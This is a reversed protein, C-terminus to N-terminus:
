TYLLLYTCAEEMHKLPGSSFVVSVFSSLCPCYWSVVDKWLICLATSSDLGGPATMSVSVIRLRYRFWLECNQSSVRVYDKPFNICIRQREALMMMIHCLVQRWQLGVCIGLTVLLMSHISAWYALIFTFCSLHQYRDRSNDSPLQPWYSLIRIWTFSINTKFKGCFSFGIGIELSNSIVWIEVTNAYQHKAWCVLVQWSTM